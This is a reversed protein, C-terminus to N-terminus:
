EIQEKPQEKTKASKLYLPFCYAVVGQFVRRQQPNIVLLM